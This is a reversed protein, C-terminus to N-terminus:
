SKPAPRDSGASTAAISAAMALTLSLAASAALTLASRSSALSGVLGTLVAFRHVFSASAMRIMRFAM